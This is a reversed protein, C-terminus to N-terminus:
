LAQKVKKQLKEIEQRLARIEVEYRKKQQELREEYRLKIRDLSQQLSNESTSQLEAAEEKQRKSLLAIARDNLSNWLKESLAVSNLTVFIFVNEAGFQEVAKEVIPSAKEDEILEIKDFDSSITELQQEFFRYLELHKFLWRNTVFDALQENGKLIHDAYVLKIEDQTIQNLPRGAFYLRVFKPDIKLHEQRIEKRICRLIDDFWPAVASFKDAYSSKAHLAKGAPSNQTNTTTKTAASTTNM